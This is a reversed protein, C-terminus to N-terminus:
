GEVGRFPPEYKDNIISKNIHRFLGGKLPVPPCASYSIFKNKPSLPTIM